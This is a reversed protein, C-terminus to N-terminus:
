STHSEANDTKLLNQINTLVKESAGTKVSERMAAVVKCFAVRADNSELSSHNKLFVSAENVVESEGFVVLRAKIENLAPSSKETQGGSTMFYVVFDKYAEARKETKPEKKALRRDWIGKLVSGVAAGLIGGMFSAIVKEDM